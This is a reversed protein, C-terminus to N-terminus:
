MEYDFDSLKPQLNDGGKSEGRMRQRLPCLPVGDDL